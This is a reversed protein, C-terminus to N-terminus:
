PGNIDKSLLCENNKDNKRTDNAPTATFMKLIHKRTFSRDFNSNAGDNTWSKITREIKSKSTRMTSIPINPNGAM